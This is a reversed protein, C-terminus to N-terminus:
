RKTVRVLDFTRQHVREVECEGSATIVAPRVSGADVHIRKANLIHVLTRSVIELHQNTCRATTSESHTAPRARKAGEINSLVLFCIVDIPGLPLVLNGESYINNARLIVLVIM